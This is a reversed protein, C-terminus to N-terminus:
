DLWAWRERAHVDADCAENVVAHGAEHFATLNM